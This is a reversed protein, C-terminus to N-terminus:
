WQMGKIIQEIEKTELYERRFISEVESKVWNEFFQQTDIMDSQLLDTEEILALYNDNVRLLIFPNSDTDNLELKYGNSFDLIENYYVVVLKNAVCLAFFKDMLEKLEDM